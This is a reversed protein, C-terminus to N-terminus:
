RTVLEETLIDQQTVRSIEAITTEKGLLKGIADQRLTTMGNDIARAEIASARGRKIILERIGEDVCLLEFVGKRGCYGTTACAECGRAAKVYRDELSSDLRFDRIDKPTVLGEAACRPCVM